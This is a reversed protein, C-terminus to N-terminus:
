APRTECGEVKFVHGYMLATGVMCTQDDVVIVGASGLGTGAHKLSEFDMPTDLQDPTLMAFSPGGPFAAKVKRGNPVGGGCESILTRIPTGMPLEYVGPRRDAGSLSFLMTGPSKDTGGRTVWAAGS